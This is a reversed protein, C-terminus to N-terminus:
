GAFAGALTLVVCVGAVLAMCVRLWAVFTSGDDEQGTDPPADGRRHSALLSACYPCPLPDPHTRYAGDLAAFADKM